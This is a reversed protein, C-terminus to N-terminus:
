IRSRLPLKKQEFRDDGQFRSRLRVRTEEPASNALEGRRGLGLDDRFIAVGRHELFTIDKLSISPPRNQSHSRKPNRESTQCDQLNQEISNITYQSLHISRQSHDDQCTTPLPHHSNSINNITSEM